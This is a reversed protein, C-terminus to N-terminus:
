VMCGKPYYSFSRGANHVFEVNRMKREEPTECGEELTNDGGYSFYGEAEEEEHHKAFESDDDHTIDEVVTGDDVLFGDEIHMAEDDHERRCVRQLFVSMHSDIDQVAM